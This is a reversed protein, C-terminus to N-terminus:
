SGVENIASTGSETSADAIRSIGLGDLVAMVLGVVIAAVGADFLLASGSKVKGLLPITVDVVRQDLVADGLAIPLVSVGAALGAGVWLLTTSTVPARKGAIARLAVLAGLVLGAAFGGGPQNHGAFFLYSAVLLAPPGAVAVGLSVIPSRPAIM